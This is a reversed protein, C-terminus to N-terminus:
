MSIHEAIPYVKLSSHVEPQTIVFADDQHAKPRSCPIRVANLIPTSGQNIFAVVDRSRM